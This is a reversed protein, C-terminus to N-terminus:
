RLLRVAADWGDVDGSPDTEAIGISQAYRIAEEQTEGSEM